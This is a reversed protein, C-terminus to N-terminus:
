KPLSKQVDTAAKTADAKMAGAADTLAKQVQAVLDTVAQQQEPTLKANSALTKLETMAGSYDGAKVAAVVKDASTRVTAEASKFSDELKATDVSAQKSCGVIAMTAAIISLLIWKSTKM